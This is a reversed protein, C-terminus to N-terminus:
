NKQNKERFTAVLAKRKEKEAKDPKQALFKEVKDGAVVM